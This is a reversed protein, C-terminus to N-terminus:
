DDGAGRTTAPAPHGELPRNKPGYVLRIFLATLVTFVIPTALILMWLFGNGLGLDSKYAALTSALFFGIMGMAAGTRWPHRSPLELYRFKSRSADILPFAFAYIVVLIPVILGIFQPGIVLGFINVHWDAPIIQLFGYIWLFYWEPKVEPTAVGPPGYAEVPNAVLVGALIGLVGVFVAFLIGMILAQQPWFPVGLIQKPAIKEAYKPQTHKQLYMILVHGVILVALILPLWLIHIANLRPLSHETPFNGGFFVDAFWPGILPLSAAIGHGIKTATASFADYPLSYGTFAAFISLGLLAIGIIWNIERPKKYAGTVLIRILHLFAAAIMINAAWHHISRIVMGFPLSDIYQVSAYAAPLQQGAVEVLRNSPEYNISLFIGTLALTAFAFLTIEGLFFSHHVPFAKRLFKNYFRGLALREDLWKVM